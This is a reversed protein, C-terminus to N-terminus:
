REYGQERRAHLDKAPRGDTRSGPVEVGVVRAPEASTPSLEGIRGNHGLLAAVLTDRDIARVKRSERLVEAMQKATESATEDAPPPVKDPDPEISLRVEDPDQPLFLSVMPEAFLAAMALLEELAIRRVTSEVEAVTVRSWRFGAKTMAAALAAQTWGAQERLRRVNEAIVQNWGLLRTSYGPPLRHRKGSGADIAARIAREYAHDADDVLGDALPRGAALRWALDELVDLHERVEAPLQKRTRATV